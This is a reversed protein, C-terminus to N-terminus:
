REKDSILVHIPGSCRRGGSSSHNVRSHRTSGTKRDNVGRDHIRTSTGNAGSSDISYARGYDVGAATSSIGGISDDGATGDSRCNDARGNSRCGCCEGRYYGCWGRADGDRGTGCDNLVRAELYM